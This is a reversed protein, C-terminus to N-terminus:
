RSTTNNEGPRWRIADAIVVIKSTANAVELTVEGAPLQFDGLDNWGFSAQEGDFAIPQRGENTVLTMQFEGLFSRQLVGTDFQPETDTDTNIGLHYALRWRGSNPLSATFAAHSEGQGPHILAHTRRYKGWSDAYVARSWYQPNGFRLQYEALGQDLDIGRDQHVEGVITFGPDLDDVVIDGTRPPSWDSPRNGVFPAADIQAQADVDPLNLRQDVRNLSLYPQLWLQYLPTSTIIGVDVSSHAAIRMPGTLDWVPDKSNGWQYRLQVLGPTGEDNRISVRTQYQANGQDNDRLRESSVVSTLFGPLAADHLWDGLLADLDVGRNAAIRYLDGTAFSRGRYEAILDGLIAAALERGFGDLISQSIASSKLSLVNLANRPNDTLDLDALSAGLARDWVSPKETTVRRLAADLDAGSGTVLNQVLVNLIVNISEDFEHASFYGSTESSIRAALEDLVFNVAHAGDGRATTQFTFINRAVGTFINGGNFDNEFYSALADVKAQEIGGERDEFEKADAFMLEFRATPWSSERLMMIGPLSQVSDMRWGGGYARLSTPTEVLSLGDYPYTLGLSEATEFLDTVRERLVEDADAFFHLNRDHGPTVLVEFEIGNIEASRREFQSAFLGVHPVTNSPRFRFRTAKDEVQTTQARGPGAVIWDAPVEVELDVTFHDVPHTRPDSGPTDTGPYPLWYAGPMMAIYTSDFISPRIGLLTIQLDNFDGEMTNVPADLYGFDGDPEGSARMLIRAASSPPLPSELNIELLGNEHSWAAAAGDVAVYTPDIGPNLTFLLTSHSGDSPSVIDINLEMQVDNGPDLLLTGTLAVMDPAPVRENALHAMRWTEFQEKQQSHNFANLGLLGIAAAAVVLSTALAKSKPTDDRRSHLAVTLSVFAVAMVLHALVRLGDGDAAFTPIIDSAIVLAPVVTMWHQLYLPVNFVIWFQLGILALSIAAILVRYRVVVALLLVISCWLILSSLAQVLFGILSYPEVADGYPLGLLTTATGFTQYLIAIFLLPLWAMIVLGVVKGTFYEANTIPRADLVGDMRDRKDRARVDFAIFTMGALLIVILNIGTQSILFRPGVASITASMGSFTSHLFTFQGYSGLGVLVAIAVYLWYHVLRRDTRIEARAVARVIPLHM